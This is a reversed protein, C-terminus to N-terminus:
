RGSIQATVQAISERFRSIQDTNDIEEELLQILVKVDKLTSKGQERWSEVVEDFIIDAMPGLIKPLQEQIQQLVPTVNEAPAPTEQPSS